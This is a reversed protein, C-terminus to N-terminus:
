RVIQLYKVYIMGIEHIFKPRREEENEEDEEERRKEELPNIYISCKNSEAFERLSNFMTRPFAFGNYLSSNSNKIIISVDESSRSLMSKVFEFFDQPTFINPFSDNFEKLEMDFQTLKELSVIHKLGKSSFHFPLDLRTLNKFRKGVVEAFDDSWLFPNKFNNDSTIILSTLSSSCSLLANTWSSGETPEEDDIRLSLNKLSPSFTLIRALHDLCGNGNSEIMLDMSTVNRLCYRKYCIDSSLIFYNLYELSEAAASVLVGNLGDMYDVTEMVKLTKPLLHWLTSPTSSPSGFYIMELNPASLLMTKLGDYFIDMVLLHRLNPLLFNRPFLALATADDSTMNESFSLCEINKSNSNLLLQLVIEYGDYLDMYVHKLSKMTNFIWIWYDIDMYPHSIVNDSCPLHYDCSSGQNYFRLPHENTIVISTRTSMATISNKEWNKCVRQIGFLKVLPIESFIKQVIVDTTIITRVSRNENTQRWWEKRRLRRELTKTKKIQRRQHGSM